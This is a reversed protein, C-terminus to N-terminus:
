GQNKRWMEICEKTVPCYGQCMWYTPFEPIVPPTEEKEFYEYLKVLTKDLYEECYEKTWCENIEVEVLNKMMLYVIAMKEVEIGNQALLWKYLNLQVIHHPYPSGWKPLAEITKYDKLRIPKKLIILDPKGSIEVGKYTATFTKEVIYDENNTFRELLLHFITGRFAYYLSELEPYVDLKATLYIRRNCNLAQSISYVNREEKLMQIICNVVPFSFPTLEDNLALKEAEEFSLKKGKFTIGKIM